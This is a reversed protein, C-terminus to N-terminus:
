CEQRTDALMETYYRPEVDREDFGLSVLLDRVHRRAEPIASEETVIEEIEIFHGLGKVEALEVRLHPLVEWVHGIKSKEVSVAYGLMACFASFALPDCVSFEIEENVEIGDRVSKRKATVLHCAEESGSPSSDDSVSRLRFALADHKGDPELAFYSDSKYFFKGRGYRKDLEAQALLPERVHAKIEVEFAM